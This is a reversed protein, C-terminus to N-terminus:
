GPIRITTSPIFLQRQVPKREHVRFVGFERLELRGETVLAEIFTELFAELGASAVPEPLNARTAILEILDIKRGAM